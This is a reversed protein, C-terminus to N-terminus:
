FGEQISKGLTAFFPILRGYNKEGFKKKCFAGVNEYEKGGSLGFVVSKFGKEKVKKQLFDVLTEIIKQYNRM